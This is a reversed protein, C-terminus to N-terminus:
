MCMGLSAKRKRSLLNARQKLLATNETKTAAIAEAMAKQTEESKAEVLKQRLDDLMADNKEIQKDLKQLEETHMADVSSSILLHYSM